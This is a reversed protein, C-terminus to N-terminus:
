TRPLSTSKDKAVNTQWNKGTCDTAFAKKAEFLEQDRKLYVDFRRSSKPAIPDDKGMSVERLFAGGNNFESLLAPHKEGLTCIIGADEIYADVTGVNRVTVAYVKVSSPRDWPENDETEELMKINSLKNPHTIASVKIKIKDKKVTYSYRLISIILAVSGVVAGYLALWNIAIWDILYTITL